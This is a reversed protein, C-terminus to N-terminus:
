FDNETDTVPGPGVSVRAALPIVAKTEAMTEGKGRKHVSQCFGQSNGGTSGRHTKVVVNVRCPQQKNLYLSLLLKYFNYPYSM